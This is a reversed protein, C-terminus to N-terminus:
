AGLAIQWGDGGRRVTRIDRSSFDIEGLPWSVLALYALAAAGADQGFRFALDDDRGPQFLALARELHDRAQSYEGAFWCTIGAVRDAVGAEPSGQKAGIDSLFAETHARMSPLDARTYSGAWLGYNAALREPADKQSTSLAHAKAFAEATEPASFGRAAILANAYAVQLQGRRQRRAAVAKVKESEGLAVLLAQAEAIQPMEPTPSFGELAPTLVAHAEALHGNSQCLKALSLAALLGFSRAGQEKAVTIATQFAEEAPALENPERNLLIEGRIRHLEADFARHGTRDSAALADDLTAVARGLDGARAESQGLALKLLPVCLVPNQERLLKLGSRMDALGEAPASMTKVWGELCAGYARWFKLDHDRAIRALEAVDSATQPLVGRALGFMAAHMKGM